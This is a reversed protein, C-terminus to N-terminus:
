ARQFDCIGFSGQCLLRETIAAALRDALHDLLQDVISSEGVAAEAYPHSDPRLDCAHARAGARGSSSSHGRPALERQQTAYAAM